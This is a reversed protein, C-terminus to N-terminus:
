PGGHREILDQNSFIFKIQEKSLHKELSMKLIKFEKQHLSNGYVYLHDYDLVRPQLLLNNMITSKGSGSYGVLLARLSSALLFHKKREKNSDKWIYDTSIDM